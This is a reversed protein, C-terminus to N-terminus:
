CTAAAEQGGRDRLAAVRESGLGARQVGSREKFFRRSEVLRGRLLTVRWFRLTEDGAGTVVSQGSPDMAMFLVRSKHGSLTALRQMSPYRWLCVDNRSYGHTTVLEEGSLSWRVNCVQCGTDVCGVCEGTLANWFRLSKDLTGGGSVLLGRRHPSWDLAKVAARHGSLRYLPELRASLGSAAGDGSAAGSSSSSSAQRKARVAGAVSWLLVRNDNGGSALTARDPSWRLGCVESEHGSLRMVPRGGKRADFVRITNDRGGTALLNNAWSMTSVRQPHDPFSRVQRETEADWLQVRGESSAVAVRRGSETWSVATVTEDEGEFGLLRTVGATAANWLFLDPGLGVALVDLASWDLLSLYFDDLLAPADLVKYPVKSVRRWGARPAALLDRSAPSLAGLAHSSVADVDAVAASAAGASAGAPASQSAALASASSPPTLTSTGLLEARMVLARTSLAEAAAAGGTTGPASGSRMRSLAAASAADNEAADLMGLGDALLSSGRSPVMRDGMSGPSRSADPSRMRKSLHADFAAGDM